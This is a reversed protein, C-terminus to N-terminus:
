CHIALRQISKFTSIHFVLVFLIGFCTGTKCALCRVIHAQISRVFVHQRFALEFLFDDPRLVGVVREQDVGDVELITLKSWAIM